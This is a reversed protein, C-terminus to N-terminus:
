ETSASDDSRAATRPSRGQAPLAAPASGHGGPGAAAVHPAPPSRRSGIRRAGGQASGRRPPALFYAAAARGGWCVLRARCRAGWALWSSARQSSRLQRGQVSERAMRALRRAKVERNLRGAQSLATPQWGARRAARRRPPRARRPTRPQWSSGVADRGRVPVTGAPHGAPWLPRSRPPSARRRRATAGLTKRLAVAARREEETPPAEPDDEHDRPRM